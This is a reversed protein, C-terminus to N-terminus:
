RARARLGGTSVAFNPGTLHHLLRLGQDFSWRGDQWHRPDAAASLVQAVLLASTGLDVVQCVRCELSAVAEAVLPAKILTGPTRTLGFRAWKDPEKAGSVTGCGYLADVLEAPMVNVGLEGTRELFGYSHHAKGSVLALMPPSQRVPMNWTVAFLNDAKGDGVSVLVVCGPNVVRYAHVLDVPLKQM